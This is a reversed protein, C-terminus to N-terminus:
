SCVSITCAVTNCFWPEEVTITILIELLTNRVDYLKQSLFNFASVKFVITDWVAGKAFNDGAPNM